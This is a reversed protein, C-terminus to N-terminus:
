GGLAAKTVLAKVPVPYGAVVLKVSGAARAVAQHMEGAADRFARGTNSEPVPALGVESSVVVTAVERARLATILAARDAALDAGVLLRNSLWLTLSNVLMPREAPATCITEPLNQPADLTLWDSTRAAQQAAVRARKENDYAATTIYTWPAAYEAVLSEAVLGKGSHAGGLVLTLYPNETM